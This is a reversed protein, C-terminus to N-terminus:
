CTSSGPPRSGTLWDPVRRAEDIADAADRIEPLLGEAVALLDRSAATGTRQKTTSM